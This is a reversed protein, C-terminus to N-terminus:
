PACGAATEGGELGPMDGVVDLPLASNVKAVNEVTNLVECRPM